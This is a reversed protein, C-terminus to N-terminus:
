TLGGYRKLLEDADHVLVRWFTGPRICESIQIELALGDELVLRYHQDFELWGSSSDTKISADIQYLGPVEKGIGAELMEQLILLDYTIQLPETGPRELRGRGTLRDVTRLEKLAVM